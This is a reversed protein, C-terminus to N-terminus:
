VRRRNIRFLLDLEMFALPLLIVASMCIVHGRFAVLATGDQMMLLSGAISGILMLTGLTTLGLRIEHRKWDRDTFADLQKARQERRNAMDNCHDRFYKRRFLRLYVPYGVCLLIVCTVRIFMWIREDRCFKRLRRHRRLRTPLAEILDSPIMGAIYELAFSVLLTCFGVLSLTRFFTEDM